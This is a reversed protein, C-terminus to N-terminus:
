PPLISSFFDTDIRRQIAPRDLFGEHCSSSAVSCITVLANRYIQGMRISEEDWDTSDDQIICLSDIWLYRVSLAKAFTVADKMVTSMFEIPIGALRENLSSKETKLQTRADAPPGWCYSLAAYRLDSISDNKARSTAERTIILRPCDSASEGLDLVRTPLFSCLNLPHCKSTCDLIAGRMM